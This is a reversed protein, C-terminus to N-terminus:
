ATFFLIESFNESFWKGSMSEEVEGSLVRGGHSGISDRRAPENPGM